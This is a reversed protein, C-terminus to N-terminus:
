VLPEQVLDPPIPLFPVFVVQNFTPIAQAATAASIDTAGAEARGPLQTSEAAVTM